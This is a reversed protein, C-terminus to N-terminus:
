IRCPTAPCHKGKRVHPYKFQQSLTKGNPRLHNFKNNRNLHNWNNGAYDYTEHEVNVTNRYM